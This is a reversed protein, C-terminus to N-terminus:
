SLPNHLDTQNKKQNKLYCLLNLCIIALLAGTSDICVDFLNGSRGPITTQYFEDMIAIIVTTFFGIVFRIKTSIKQKFCCYLPLQLSLALLFYETMHAVKRVFTHILEARQIITDERSAVPLDPSCVTVIQVSIEFSLSSSTPADQSSFGFIMYLLLLSPVFSLLRFFVTRFKFM